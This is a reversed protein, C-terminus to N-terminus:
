RRRPSGDIMDGTTRSGKVTAHRFFHQFNDALKTACDAIIARLESMETKTAEGILVRLRVMVHQDVKGIAQKEVRCGSLDLM